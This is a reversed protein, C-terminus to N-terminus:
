KNWRARIKKVEDTAWIIFLAVLVLVIVAGFLVLGIVDKWDWVMVTNSTCSTFLILFLIVAALLKKRANLNIYKM